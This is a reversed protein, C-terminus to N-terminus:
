SRKERMWRAFMPETVTYSGRSALKFLIGSDMLHSLAKSIVSRAYPAGYPPLHEIVRMCVEDAHSVRRIERLQQDFVASLHDMMQADAVSITDADIGTVDASKALFYAFSVVGMMGYPHGGTKDLLLQMAPATITLGQRALRADVYAEWAAEPVPPLPLFTAFRYFAQKRDAFLTKMLSPQSGLFLFSTHQLTQMVARMKKILADGGLRQVDQFEDFLVVLTKGAKAAMKEGWALVSILQDHPSADVPFQVGIELEGIRTRVDPRGLWHLLSTFTQMGQRMAGLRNELLSQMLLSAFHDVSDASFLDVSAVYHGQTQLQRLIERAVSSKGMRRPGAIIASQGSQLRLILDKMYVERDVVDGGQALRGFPFM